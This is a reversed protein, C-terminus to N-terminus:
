KQITLKFCDLNGWGGPGSKIRIGITITGESSVIGSISPFTVNQWSSVSCPATYTVGDAIAYIEMDQNSCDGGHIAMSYQYTGPALDSIEQEMTFDIDHASYFHMSNNGDVADVSKESVFLEDTVDDINELSWMSLDSDEFSPNVVYNIDRVHIFCIADMEQEEYTAKGYFTYAGTKSNDISDADSSWSVPVDITNGSNLVGSVTDPLIIDEGVGYSLDTDPIYELSLPISSGTRLYSFTKLSALPHGNFDFLAQNDWASGGYYLGADKPDYESSFSSAWGSGYQEWLAFRDEYTNGPVPIWAPEWYVIGIGLDGCNVVAQAIDQICNAQGQVSIAYPLVAVSDRSITNGFSDGDVSTYAYSFEAVMVKKQYKESIYSLISTLNDLTGHWFPYYSTAFIDYEVDFKELNEAFGKYNDAVEPNTFHVATQISINYESNIDSIARSGGKMVRSIGQWNTEGALGLTTENGIQVISVSVNEDVLAKLCDYTYQYAAEEKEDITMNTWAKPVMQKSPDAWFDSYHFDVMLNMNYSTARKGIEIATNIDNNGGGYGNGNSDFPDNWVRVRITNVGNDALVKLLDSENGEFDYYRVGSNEESIITSVDVGMVFDEPLNPIAEAYVDLTELAEKPVEIEQPIPKEEDKVVSETTLSSDAPSSESQITESITEQTSEHTEIPSSQSECGTAALLTCSLAITALRTRKMFPFFKM